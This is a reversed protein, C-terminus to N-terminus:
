QLMAHHPEDRHWESFLSSSVPSPVEELELRLEVFKGFFCGLLKLCPAHLRMFNWLGSPRFGQYVNRINHYQRGVLDFISGIVALESFPRDLRGVHALYSSNTSIHLTM